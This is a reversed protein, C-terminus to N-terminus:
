TRRFGKLSNKRIDYNVDTLRSERNKSNKDNNSNESNKSNENDNDYMTIIKPKELTILDNGSTVMKNKYLSFTTKTDSPNHPPYNDPIIELLNWGSDEIIKSYNYVDM